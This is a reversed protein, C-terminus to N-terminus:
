IHIGDVVLSNIFQVVKQILQVLQLFKHPKMNNSMGYTFIQKVLRQLESVMLKGNLVLNFNSSIPTKRIKKKYEIMNSNPVHLDFKKRLPQHLQNSSDDITPSSPEDNPSDTPIQWVTCKSVVNSDQVLCNKKFYYKLYFSTKNVIKIFQRLVVIIMQHRLWVGSKGLEILM